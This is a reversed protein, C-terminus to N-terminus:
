VEGLRRDLIAHIEVLDTDTLGKVNPPHGFLRGITSIIRKREKCSLSM